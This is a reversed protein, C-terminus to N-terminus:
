FKPTGIKCRSMKIISIGIKDPYSLKSIQTKLNSIDRNLSIKDLKTQRKKASFDLNKIM